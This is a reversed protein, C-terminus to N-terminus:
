PAEHRRALKRAHVVGWGSWVVDGWLETCINSINHIYGIWPNIDSNENVNGQLQVTQTVSIVSGESSRGAVLRDGRQHWQSHMGNTLTDTHTCTHTHTHTWVVIVHQTCIM